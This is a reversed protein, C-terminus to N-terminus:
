HNQLNWTYKSSPRWSALRRAHTTFVTGLGQGISRRLMSKVIGSGSQSQSKSAEGDRNVRSPSNIDGLVYNTNRVQAKESM